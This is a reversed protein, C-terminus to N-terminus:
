EDEKLSTYLQWLESTKLESFKHGTEKNRKLNISTM